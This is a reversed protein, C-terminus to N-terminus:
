GQDRLAASGSALWRQVHALLDALDFPKALLEAIGLPEAQGAHHNATTLGIIIPAVDPLRQLEHLFVAEHSTPSLVDLLILDPRFAHVAILADAVSQCDLAEYGEDSLALRLCECISEDGDVVLVRATSRKTHGTMAPDMNKM